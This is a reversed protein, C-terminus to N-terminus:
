VQIQFAESLGHQKISSLKQCGTGQFVARNNDGPVANRNVDLTHQVVDQIMVNYAFGSHQLRTMEASNLVTIIANDKYEYHDINLNSFAFNRVTGSTVPIRVKSYKEQATSYLTLLACPFFLFWKRLSM